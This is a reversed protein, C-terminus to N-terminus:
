QVAIAADRLNWPFTPWSILSAASPMLETRCFLVTRQKLGLVNSGKGTDERFPMPLALRDALIVEFIEREALKLSQKGM